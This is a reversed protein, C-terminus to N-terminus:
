LNVKGIGPIYSATRYWEVTKRIGEALNTEAHFGLREEANRTDILRVPIMSPKSPNFRIDADHYKDVELITQLVEKVSYGKGSAINIALYDEAKEFALLLGDLFEDIYILDKLDRGTGWVELPQHREVVRRILAAMMHSTSFDFDDNPGYVNSPRIVVTPMPDKIKQAYIKCLIEVYRKMWGVSYYTEYPEGEFMEEERVPRDDTPPYAASSSIFLFKQVKAGYAAELIQANMVVNPTVHVLPTSDMVAAGSTNAACMCVYDIGEVVRRCDDMQTLDVQVYEVNDDEVLVPRKHYTARIRCRLPLLRSILNAGIFGTGGAVLVKAGEFMELLGKAGKNIGAIKIPYFGALTEPLWGNM